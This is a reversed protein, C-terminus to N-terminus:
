GSGLIGLGRFPVHMGVYSNHAETKTTMSVCDWCENEIALVVLCCHHRLIWSESVGIYGLDDPLLPSLKRLFGLILPFCKGLFLFGAMLLLIGFVAILRTPIAPITRRSVGGRADTM